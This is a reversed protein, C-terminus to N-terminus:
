LEDDPEAELDHEDLWRERALDETSREPEPNEREPDLTTSM